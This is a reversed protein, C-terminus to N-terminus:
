AGSLVPGDTEDKLDVGSYQVQRARTLLYHLKDAAAMQDMRHAITNPMATGGWNDREHFAAM